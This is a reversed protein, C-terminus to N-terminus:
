YEQVFPMFHYVIKIVCDIFKVLIKSQYPSIGATTSLSPLDTIVSLTGSNFNHACPGHDNQSEKMNFLNLLLM